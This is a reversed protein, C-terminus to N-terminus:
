GTLKNKPSTAPPHRTLMDRVRARARHVRSMVTGIPCGLAVAAEQYSLGEIDVLALITRMTAPLASYARYLPHSAFLCHPEHDLGSTPVCAETYVCYELQMCSSARQRVSQRRYESLFVNRLITSLWSRLGQASSPRSNWHALARMFTEQVLDRARDQNKCLNRAQRRLVPEADKIFNPHDLNAFDMYM